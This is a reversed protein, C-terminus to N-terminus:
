DLLNNPDPNTDSIPRNLYKVTWQLDNIKRSLRKNQLYLISMIVTFAGGMCVFMVQLWFGQSLSNM